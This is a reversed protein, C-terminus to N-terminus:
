GISAALQQNAQSLAAKLADKSYTGTVGIQQAISNIAKGLVVELQLWSEFFPTPYSKLEADYLTDWPPWRRM